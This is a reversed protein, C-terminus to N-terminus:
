TQRVPQPHPDASTRAILGPLYYALAGARWLYMTLFASWVGTNGLWPRLALDTAVYLLCSVVGANRLARGQTAGLFFGDLQWCAIGIFPVAACFPLYTLAVSRAEVDAVFHEILWGGAFYYALSITAGFYTDSRYVPVSASTWDTIDMTSAAAVCWQARGWQGIYTAEPAIPKAEPMMHVAWPAYM